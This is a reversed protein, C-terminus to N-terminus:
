EKYKLAIRKLEEKINNFAKVVLPDFSIGSEKAILMEADEFSFEEKYCRKSILADYMDAVSMIRAEIPIEYHSLGQPYGKGNWKEHHGYAINKSMELFPNAGQTYIIKDILNKAITTHEKMIEFEQATFKAPKKLISEPIGVKGIDHMPASHYILEIFAPTITQRYYRHEYLWLAIAKAYKKTRVIHSGTANDYIGVLLSMSDLSSSQAKYIAKDFTQKDLKNIITFLLSLGFSTITFPILFYGVCLYVGSKLNIYSFILVGFLAVLFLLLMLIYFRFAIFIIAVITLFMSLYIFYAKFDENQYKLKHSLINEIILAQFQTNTIDQNGFIKFDKEAGASSGIIAIKGEIKERAEEFNLVDIASVKNVHLSTDILVQAKSDTIFKYGLVEVEQHHNNLINTDLSSLMAVSFSPIKKGNLYNFLKARRSIGDSDPEINIFGFNKYAQHYIPYNQIIEKNNLQYIPLIASSQKIQNAFIKDNDQMELPIDSIDINKNFNNKYFTQFNKAGLNDAESFLFNIGIVAPTNDQVRQLLKTVILRSWPWTGLEHLSKEDVDIIVVHSSGNDDVKSDQLGMLQDYIKYDLESLIRFDKLLLHGVIILIIIIIYKFLRFM